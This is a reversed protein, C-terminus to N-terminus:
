LEKDKRSEIAYILNNRKNQGDISVCNDAIHVSYKGHPQFVIFPHTKLVSAM